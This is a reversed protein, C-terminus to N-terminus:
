FNLNLGDVFAAGKESLCFSRTTAGFLHKQKNGIEIVLNAEIFENIYRNIKTYINLEKNIFDSKKLVSKKCLKAIKMLEIVDAATESKNFRHLMVSLIRQMDDPVKKLKDIVKKEQEEVTQKEQYDEFNCVVKFSNDFNLTAILDFDEGSRAERVIRREKINKQLKNTEPDQLHHITLVTNAAGSIATNGSLADVGVNNNDKNAHHLLIFTGGEETIAHKLDYLIMGAEQDNERVGTTRTTSRFSDLIVIPEDFTKIDKLVRNIDNETYRFKKSWYLNPHKYIDAAQMMQGSDADSQDDTILIIKSLGAPKVDLFEEGMLLCRALGISLRTKGVKPKGGIITLDTKPIRNEVLWNLEPLGEAIRTAANISKYINGALVDQSEMIMKILQDEKIVHQLKLKVRVDRLYALRRISNRHQRVTRDVYKSFFDMKYALSKNILHTIKLEDKELKWIGLKSCYSAVSRLVSGKSLQGCTFSGAGYKRAHREFGKNIDGDFMASNELFEKFKNDADDELVQYGLDKLQMEAAKLDQYISFAKTHRNGKAGKQIGTKILQKTKNSIALDVPLKIDIQNPKPYKNNEIPEIDERWLKGKDFNTTNEDEEIDDTAKLIEEISYTNGTGYVVTSRRGGKPHIAGALRTPQHCSHLSTDTNFGCYNWITQSIRKRLNEIVEIDAYEKLAHWVHYSKNGSDMVVTPEPLGADEWVGWQSTLEEDDIEYVLLRSKTIEKRSIKAVGGPSSIFGFNNTKPNLLDKQVSNFLGSRGKKAALTTVTQWDYNENTPRPPHYLNTQGYCCLIIPDDDKYQLLRLMKTAEDVDLLIEKETTKAASIVV